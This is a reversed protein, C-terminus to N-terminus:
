VQGGYWGERKIYQGKENYCRRVLEQEAELAPTCVRFGIYDAPVGAWIEWDDIEQYKPVVSGAGIVVGDGIIAGPLIVSNAGILAHKGIYVPCEIVERLDQPVMPGFLGALSETSTFIRVGWSLNAFPGIWCREGGVISSYAAIHVFDGISLDKVDLFTLDDIMVAHGLKINEIGIIKAGPWIICDEGMSSFQHKAPSPPSEPAWSWRALSM